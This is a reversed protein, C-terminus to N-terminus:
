RLGLMAASKRWYRKVQHTRREWDSMVHTYSVAEDLKAIQDPRLKQKGARLLEQTHHALRDAVYAEDLDDIPSAEYKGRFSHGKPRGSALPPVGLFEALRREDDSIRYTSVVALQKAPITDMVDVTHEVWYALYADLSYLGQRRLPADEARHPHPRRLFRLDRFRQWPTGMRIPRSIQHNVFSRVWSGADRVTLIYRADPYLAFISSVIFGNLQSVNLQLNQSEFLTRVERQFDQEPLGEEYRRLILPILTQSDPEHAARLRDEFLTAVSHTGTKAAGVGFGILDSM